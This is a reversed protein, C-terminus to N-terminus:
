VKNKMPFLQDKPGSQDQMEELGKINAFRVKIEKILEIAEPNKTGEKEARAALELEEISVRKFKGALELKWAIEKAEKESVKIEGKTEMAIPTKIGAKFTTEDAKALKKTKNIEIQDKAIKAAM